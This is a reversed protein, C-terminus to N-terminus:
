ERFTFVYETVRFFKEYNIADLNPFILGDIWHNSKPRLWWYHQRRRKRRRELQKKEEEMCVIIAMMLILAQQQHLLFALATINMQFYGALGAMLVRKEEADLHDM